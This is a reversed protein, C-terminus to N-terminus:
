VARDSHDAFWMFAVSFMNLSTIFYVERKKQPLVVKNQFKSQMDYFFKSTMFHLFKSVVYQNMVSRISADHDLKNLVILKKHLTLTKYKGRTSM